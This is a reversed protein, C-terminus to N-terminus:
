LNLYRVKWLKPYAAFGQLFMGSPSSITTGIAHKHFSSSSHSKVCSPLLDASFGVELFTTTNPVLGAFPRSQLSLSLSLSIAGRGYGQRFLSLSLSLADTSRKQSHPLLSLSLSLSLSFFFFLSCRAHGAAKDSSGCAVNPLGPCAPASSLASVTRLIPNNLNRVQPRRYARYPPSCSPANAARRVSCVHSLPM